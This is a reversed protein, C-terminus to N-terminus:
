PMSAVTFDVFAIGSSLGCLVYLLHAQPRSWWPASDGAHYVNEYHDDNGDSRRLKM